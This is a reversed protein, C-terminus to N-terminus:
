KGITAVQRALRQPAPRHSVLVLGTGTSALWHELRDIVMAETAADLGETPEDLLLWPRGALVARALALRKRQGGSLRAGDGGLWEDLGGPMARVTEAMCALDLAQWMAAETVRPRALRLNDAVTGAILGADQPALAFQRRLRNLGLARVDVGDVLLTEPADGRLGILTGLLRSKGSGSPGAVLVRGGPPLAV